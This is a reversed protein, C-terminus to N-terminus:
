STYVSRPVKVRETQGRPGSKVHEIVYDEGEDEERPLVRKLSPRPVVVVEGASRKKRVLFAVADDHNKGNCGAISLQDVLFSLSKHQLREVWGEFTHM